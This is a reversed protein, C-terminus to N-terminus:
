VVVPGFSRRIRAELASCTSSMTEKSIFVALTLSGVAVHGGGEVGGIMMAVSCTLM